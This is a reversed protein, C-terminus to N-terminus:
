PTVPQSSSHASSSASPPTQFAQRVAQEPDQALLPEPLQRGLKSTNAWQDQGLLLIRQALQRISAHPLRGVAQWLPAWTPLTWRRADPAPLVSSAPQSRAALTTLTDLSIPQQYAALWADFEGQPPHPQSLMSEALHVIASALDDVGIISLRQQGSGLRVPARSLRELGPRLFRDGPGVVFRPRVMWARRGTHQAWQAWLAECRARSAALATGPRIPAEELVGRHPGDGHVSMSSLFLVGRTSAGMQRCLQQVGRENVAYGSGDPDTQKSAGHILVHPAQPFLGAPLPAQEHGLPGLVPQLWDTQFPLAQRHVLATVRVPRGAAHLHQLRRLIAQGVFGSGGLLVVHLASPQSM